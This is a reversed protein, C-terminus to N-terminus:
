SCSPMAYTHSKMHTNQASKSVFKKCCVDCRFPFEGSHHRKHEILTSNKKFTKGCEECVFQREQNHTNIHSRLSNKLKFSKLCIQCMYPKTDSHTFRHARLSSEKWFSKGCIDCLFTSVHFHSTNIHHMILQKTPVEKSCLKCAFSNLTADFYQTHMTESHAQLAITNSFERGCKKCPYKPKEKHTNLHANCRSRNKFTKDCIPCVVSTERRCSIQNKMHESLIEFSSFSEACMVCVYSAAKVTMFSSHKRPKKKQPKPRDHGQYDEDSDDQAKEFATDIEVSNDRKEHDLRVIRVGPKSLKQIITETENRSESLPSTVELPDKQNM